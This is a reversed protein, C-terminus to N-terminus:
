GISAFVVCVLTSLADGVSDAEDFVSEFLGYKFQKDGARLIFSTRAACVAVSRGSLRTRIAPPKRSSPVESIAIALASINSGIVLDKVGVLSIFAGRSPCVAVNNGFPLTSM